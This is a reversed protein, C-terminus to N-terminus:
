SRHVQAEVTVDKVKWLIGHTNAVYASGRGDLALAFPNGLGSAAQTLRGTALDVRILLGETFATTYANGRGDLAIGYADGLGAAIETVEGTGLKVRLLKGDNSTVYASGRGNLALGWLDKLGSVVETRIGSRAEVRYIRGLASLVYILRGAADVAVDAPYEMYGAVAATLGTSLDVRYLIGRYLNSVFASGRGDLAVSNVQGLNVTESIQGSDLDVRNLSGSYFSTVYAHGADDLAVGGTSANGLGIAVKTSGLSSKCVGDCPHSVLPTSPCDVSSAVQCRSSSCGTGLVEKASPTGDVRASSCHIGTLADYKSIGTDPIAAPRRTTTMFYEQKYTMNLRPRKDLTLPRRGHTQVADSAALIRLRRKFRRRLVRGVPRPEDHSNPWLAGSTLYLSGSRPPLETTLAM